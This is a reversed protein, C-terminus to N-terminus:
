PHRTLYAAARKLGAAVALGGGTVGLFAFYSWWGGGLATGVIISFGIVFVAAGLGEMWPIPQKFLLIGVFVGILSWVAVMM